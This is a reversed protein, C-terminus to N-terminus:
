KLQVREIRCSRPRPGASCGAAGHVPRRASARGVAPPPMRVLERRLEALACDIARGPAEARLAVVIRGSPMLHVAIICSITAERTESRRLSVNVLHVRSAAEHLVRALAAELRARGAAGLDVGLENTHIRM